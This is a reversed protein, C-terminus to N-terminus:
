AQGGDCFVTRKACETCRMFLEMEDKDYQVMDAQYSESAAEQQTIARGCVDCPLGSPEDHPVIM